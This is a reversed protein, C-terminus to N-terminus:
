TSLRDLKKSIYHAWIVHTDENFHQDPLYDPNLGTFRTVRASIGEFRVYCNMGMTQFKYNKFHQNHPLDYKQIKKLLVVDEDHLLTQICHIGKLECM